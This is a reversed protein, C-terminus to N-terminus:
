EGIIAIKFPKLVWAWWLIGVGVMFIIFPIIDWPDAKGVRYLIVDKSEKFGFWSIFIGLVLLTILGIWQLTM